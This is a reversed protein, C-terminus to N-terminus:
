YRGFPDRNNSYARHYEDRTEDVNTNVEKMSDKGVLLNQVPKKTALASILSDKQNSMERTFKIEMELVDKQKKVEWEYKDQSFKFEKEKLSKNLEKYKEVLEIIQPKEYEGLRKGEINEEMYEQLRNNEKELAKNQRLLSENMLSIKRFEDNSESLEHKLQEIEFNLNKIKEFNFLDM